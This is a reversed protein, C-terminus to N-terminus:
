DKNQTNREIIYSIILGLGGCCLISGGIVLEQLFRPSRNVMESYEVLQHTCDLSLFFGLLLGLGMGLMVSGIRLSSFSINAGRYKGFIAGMDPMNACVISDLKEIIMIREKRCIILEFLKYIGYTVIGFTCPITIFEM